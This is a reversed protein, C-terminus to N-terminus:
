LFVAIKMMLKKSNSNSRKKVGDICNTLIDILERQKKQISISDRLSPISTDLERFRVPHFLVSNKQSIKFYKLSLKNDSLKKQM